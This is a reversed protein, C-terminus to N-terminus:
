PKHEYLLGIVAILDDWEKWDFEVQGGIDDTISFSKSRTEGLVNAKESEVCIGM